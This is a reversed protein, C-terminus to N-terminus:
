LLARPESCKVLDGAPNWGAEEGGEQIPSEPATQGAGLLPSPFKWQVGAKHPTTQRLQPSLAGNGGTNLQSELYGM